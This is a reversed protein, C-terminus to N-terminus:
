EAMAALIKTVLDPEGFITVLALGVIFVVTAVVRNPVRLSSLSGQILGALGVLTLGGGVLGLVLKTLLTGLEGDM